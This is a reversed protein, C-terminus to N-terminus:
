NQSRANLSKVLGNIVKSLEQGDSRLEILKENSIFELDSSIILQNIVEM